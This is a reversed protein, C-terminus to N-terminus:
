SKIDKILKTKLERFHQCRKTFQDLFKEPQLM